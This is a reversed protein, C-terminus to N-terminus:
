FVFASICTLYMNINTRCRGEGGEFPDFFPLLSFATPPTFPSFKLTIVFLSLGDVTARALWVGSRQHQRVMAFPFFILPPFFIDILLVACDSRHYYAILGSPTACETEVGSLGHPPHHECPPSISVTSYIPTSRFSVGLFSFRIFYYSSRASPLACVEVYWLIPCQIIFM